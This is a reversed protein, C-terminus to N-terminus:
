PTCSRQVGATGRTVSWSLEQMDQRSVLLGVRLQQVVVEGLISLDTLFASVRLRFM